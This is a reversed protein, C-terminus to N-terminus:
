RDEWKSNSYYRRLVGLLLVLSNVQCHFLFCPLSLARNYEKQYQVLWEQLHCIGSVRKMFTFDQWSKFLLNSNMGQEYSQKWPM